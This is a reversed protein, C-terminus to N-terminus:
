KYNPTRKGHCVHTHVYRRGRVVATGPLVYLYYICVSTHVIFMLDFGSVGVVATPQQTTFFADAARKSDRRKKIGIEEAVVATRLACVDSIM